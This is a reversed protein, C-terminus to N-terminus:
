DSALVGGHAVDQPERDFFYIAITKPDAHTNEVIARTMAAAALRKMAVDRRFAHIKVFTRIEGPPSLVGAHAYDSAAVPLYYLTVIDRSIAFAGALGETLRASLRARREEDQAIGTIEVFPM